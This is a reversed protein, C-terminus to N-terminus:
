YLNSHICESHQCYCCCRQSGVEADIICSLMVAETAVTPSSADGKSIYDRRKNGGAVTRGKFKRDRKEKLFMHSELVSTCETVSLDKWHLPTFTDRLHLQKMESHVAEKTKDGWHLLRVKLSLQTMVAAVVDPETPGEQQFFSMHANPHLVHQTMGFLKGGFSPVYATPKISARVSRRLRPSAFKPLRSDDRIHTRIVIKETEPTVHEDQCHWPTSGALNLLRLKM